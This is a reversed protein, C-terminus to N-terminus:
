KKDAKRLIDLEEISLSIKDKERPSELDTIREELLEQQQFLHGIQRKLQDIEDQKGGNNLEMKRMKSRYSLFIALLPISFVMVVAVLGVFDDMFSNM